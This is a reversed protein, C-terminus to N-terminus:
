VVEIRGARDTFAGIRAAASVGRARLEAVLADGSSPEVAILLGGSTQADALVLHQVPEIRESWDMSAEVSALNRRTGGPVVDQRAFDLTETLVPVADLSVRAGVDGGGLMESLHGLLGFGTVDTAAHVAAGARVMTESAARNLTSMVEVARAIAAESALGRKIATTLIGIGLPKTLILTDGPRAGVNRIIRAPSVTGLAVLGYKPEPDDVSHGGLIAVGAEAVKAAGGQIVQELLELPLTDRPFNVINLAFLPTAGMAYVDSLANAAAIGGWAYPDDVVPTIYDVTAVLATDPGIQYVAADDALAAGVLANADLVSPLHRLV